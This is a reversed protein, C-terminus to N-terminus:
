VTWNRHMCMVADLSRGNSGAASL